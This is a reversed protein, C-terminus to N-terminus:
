NSRTYTATWTIFGTAGGANAKYRIVFSNDDIVSGELGIYDGTVMPVGVVENSYQNDFLGQKPVVINGCLVEFNFGQRTPDPAQGPNFSGTNKTRFKNIGTQTVIEATQTTTAGTSERKLSVTYTGAIDAVCGVFVIRMTDYQMGIVAGGSASTLKLVLETPLDPDLNGTNVMLPFMGFTTGAPIVIQGSSDSFNFEMGEVASSADTDISYNVIIDETAVQGNGLGILNVPFSRLVPGEDAFYSISQLNSAFGVIKPGTFDGEPKLDDDSCGIAIAVLMFISLIKKM